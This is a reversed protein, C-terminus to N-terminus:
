VYYKYTNCPTPIVTFQHNTKKASIIFIIVIASQTILFIGVIGGYFSWVVKKKKKNCFNNSSNTNVRQLVTSLVADFEILLTLLNM